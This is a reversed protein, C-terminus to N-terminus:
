EMCELVDFLKCLKPFQVALWSVITEDYAYEPLGCEYFAAHLLEHRKNEKSRVDKKWEAESRELLGEKERLRIKKEYFDTEGDCECPLDKVTSLEYETGFVNVQM